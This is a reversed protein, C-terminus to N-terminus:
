TEREDSGTGNGNRRQALSRIAEDHAWEYAALKMTDSDIKGVSIAREALMTAKMREELDLDTLISLVTERPAANLRPDEQEPLTAATREIARETAATSVALIAELFESDQRLGPPLRRELHRVAAEAILRATREIHEQGASM